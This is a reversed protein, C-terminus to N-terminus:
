ESITFVDNAASAKYFLSESGNKLTIVVQDNGGATYPASQASTARGKSLTITGTTVKITLSPPSASFLGPAFQLEHDSTDVATIKAPLTVVQDAM